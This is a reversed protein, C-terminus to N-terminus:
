FNSFIVKQCNLSNLKENSFTISSIQDDKSKVEHELKFSENRIKDLKVEYDKRLSLNDKESKLM